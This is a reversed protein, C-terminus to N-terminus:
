AFYLFPSVFSGLVPGLLWSRVDDGLAKWLAVLGLGDRILGAGLEM